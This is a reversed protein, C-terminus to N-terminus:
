RRASVLVAVAAVALLVGVIVPPHVALAHAVDVASGPEYTALARRIHEPTGSGATDWVIVGPARPIAALYRRYGEDTALAPSSAWGAISPIVRGAGFRETWRAFWQEFARPDQSTRGYIQPSAWVDGACAAALADLGPWAPYSTVGVRMSRATERLAAGLAAAEAYRERQGLAPWDTEPDAIIGEVGPISAAVARIRVLGERWERGPGWREPTGYLWVSAGLERAQAAQSPADSRWANVAVFAWRRYTEITDRAYIGVGFPPVARALM